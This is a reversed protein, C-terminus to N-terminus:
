LGANTIDPYQLTGLAASPRVDSTSQAGTNGTGTTTDLNTYQDVTCVPTTDEEGGVKMLEGYIWGTGAAFDQASGGSNYSQADSASNVYNYWQHNHSHYHAGSTHTHAKLNDWTEGIESGTGATNDYLDSGGKLALVCDSVGTDIDWGDMTSDRYVWFKQDNDGCLVALWKEDDDHRVKLLGASKSNTSKDFWLLGRETNSPPTDSSLNRRILEFNEEIQAMDSVAIHDSQFCNANYAM